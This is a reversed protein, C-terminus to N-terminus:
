RLIHFKDLLGEIVDINELTDKWPMINSQIKDSNICKIVEMIQFIFGNDFDFDFTKKSGNERCLTIKHCDIFREHLEISGKTGIIHMKSREPIATGCIFDATAGSPYKLIITDFIDTKQDSIDAFGMYDCPNEGLLFSTLSINYVGLDYLVGGGLSRNFIRSKPKYPIL